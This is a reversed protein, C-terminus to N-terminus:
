PALISNYMINIDNTSFVSDWTEFSLKYKFDQVTAQDIQRIIKKWKASGNKIIAKVETLVILQADHDSGMLYPIYKM